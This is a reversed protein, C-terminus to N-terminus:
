TGPIKDLAALVEATGPRGSPEFTLMRKILDNLAANDTASAFKGVAVFTPDPVERTLMEYWTIGLAYIDASAEVQHPSSRQEPAMYNWSGLKMSDKTITGASIFEPNMDSWCVIGLDGLVFRDEMKLINDPKIDRHVHGDTHLYNLGM